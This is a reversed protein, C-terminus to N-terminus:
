TLVPTLIILHKNRKGLPATQHNDNTPLLTGGLSLVVSLKMGLSSSFIICSLLENYRIFSLLENM